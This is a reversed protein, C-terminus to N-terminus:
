IFLNSSVRFLWAIYPMDKKKNSIIKPSKILKYVSHSPRMKRNNILDFALIEGKSYGENVQTREKEKTDLKLYMYTLLRFSIYITLIYTKFKEIACACVCQYIHEILYYLSIPIFYYVYINSFSLLFNFMFPPLYYLFGDM